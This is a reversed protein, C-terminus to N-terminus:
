DGGLLSRIRRPRRRKKDRHYPIMFALAPILAALIFLTLM